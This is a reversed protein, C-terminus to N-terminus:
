SYEKTKVFVKFTSQIFSVLVNMSIKLVHILLMDVRVNNGGCERQFLWVYGIMCTQESWLFNLTSNSDNEM